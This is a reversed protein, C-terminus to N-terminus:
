HEGVLYFGLVFVFVFGGNFDWFGCWWGSVGCKM